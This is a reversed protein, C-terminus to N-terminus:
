SGTEMDVYLIFGPIDFLLSYVTYHLLITYVTYWRM